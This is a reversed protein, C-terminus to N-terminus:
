KIGKKLQNLRVQIIEVQISPTKGIVLNELEEVGGLAREKKAETALLQTIQNTAHDIVERGYIPFIAGTNPPRRIEVRAIAYNLIDLVLKELAESSSYPKPKM